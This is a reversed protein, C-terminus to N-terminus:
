PDVQTEKGAEESLRALEDEDFGGEDEKLVARARELDKANVYVDRFRSMGREFGAGGGSRMCHIGAESLRGMIIDAEFQDVSAVIKLDDDRDSM